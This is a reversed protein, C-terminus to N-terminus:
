EDDQEKHPTGAVDSLAQAAEVILEKFSESMPDVHHPNDVYERLRQAITRLDNPETARKLDAKAYAYRMQDETAKCVSVWKGAGNRRFMWGFHSNRPDVMVAYLGDDGEILGTIQGSM